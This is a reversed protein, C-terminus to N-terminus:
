FAFPLISFIVDTKGRPVRIQKIPRENVIDVAVIFSDMNPKERGRLWLLNEELKTQRLATFGVMAMNNVVCIGRCWGMPMSWNFVEYLDIVRLQKKTILDFEVIKGDVTTFYIKDQYKYGDHIGQISIDFKERNGNLSIADRQKFRTVWIKDDIGFVFNPHSKHPKTSPIKRYDVNKDFRDWLDEELVSTIGVFEKDKNFRVVADLGTNAVVYEGNILNVHHADNLYPHTFTDLLEFSPLQYIFVATGSCCLLKDEKITAATLKFDKGGKLTGFKDTTDSRVVTTFSEDNLDFVDITGFSTSRSVLKLRKRLTTYKERIGGVILFKM